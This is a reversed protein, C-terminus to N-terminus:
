AAAAAPLRGGSEDAGTHQGVAQLASLAAALLLSPTPCAHGARGLGAAVIVCSLCAVGQRSCGCCARVRGGGASSGTRVQDRVGAAAAAGSSSPGGAGAAATCAGGLLHGGRRSCVRGGGGQSGGPARPPGYCLVPGAPSPSLPPQYSDLASCCLQATNLPMCCLQATGLPVCCLQALAALAVAVAIFACGAVALQLAAACVEYFNLDLTQDLYARMGGTVFASVCLVAQSCPLRCPLTFPSALMCRELLCCSSCVVRLSLLSRTGTVGAARVDCPGALTHWGQRAGAGVRNLRVLQQGRTTSLFDLLRNTLDPQSGPVQPGLGAAARDAAALRHRVECYGSVLNRAGLSVAVSVLSHGRESLLAELVRDLAPKHTSPAAAHAFGSASGDLAPHTGHLSSSATAASSAGAPCSLATLSHHAPAVAHGFLQLSVEALRVAVGLLGGGRGGGM